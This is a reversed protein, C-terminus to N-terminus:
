ENNIELNDLTAALTSWLFESGYDYYDVRHHIETNNKNYIIFYRIYDKTAVEEWLIFKAQKDLWIGEQTLKIGKIEIEGKSYFEDLYETVLKSYHLHWIDEIIARYKRDNDLNLSFYSTFRIRLEGCGKVKFTISYQRGVNFHYWVISEDTHKFDIIDSWKLRTFADHTYNENEWELYDEALLLKRPRGIFGSSILYEKM